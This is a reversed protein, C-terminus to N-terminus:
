EFDEADAPDFGLMEVVDKPTEIQEDDPDHGAPTKRWNPLSTDATGFRADPFNIRNDDSM